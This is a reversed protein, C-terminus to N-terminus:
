PREDLGSWRPNSPHNTRHLIQEFTPKIPFFTSNKEFFQIESEDARRSVLPRASDAVRHLCDVNVLSSLMRAVPFPNHSAAPNTAVNNHGLTATAADVMVPVTTKEPVAGASLGSSMLASATQWLFCPLLGPGFSASTRPVPLVMPFMM